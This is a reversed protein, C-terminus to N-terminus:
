KSARATLHVKVSDYSVDDSYISIEESISAGPKIESDNDTLYVSDAYAVDDGNMFLVTAEPFRAAVSGNNAATLIVKKRTQRVQLALNQVVPQYYNEQKVQFTSNFKYINKENWYYLLMFVTCGSPIDEQSASKASIVNGGADIATENIGIHLTYPSNNTIEFYHSTAYDNEYIYDTVALDQTISDSSYSLNSYNPKVVLVGNADVEKGDPTITSYYMYGEPGFYYQKGDITQWGNVTYSGDDNQYWKGKEDQLWQGAFAPFTLAASLVAATVFMLQKKM